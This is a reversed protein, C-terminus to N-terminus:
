RGLINKPNDWDRVVVGWGGVLYLSGFFNISSTPFLPMEPRFQLHTSLILGTVLQRSHLCLTTTFCSTPPLPCAPPPQLHCLPGTTSVPLCFYLSFSLLRLFSFSTKANQSSSIWSQWIDLSQTQALFLSLLVLYFIVHRVSKRKSTHEKQIVLDLM